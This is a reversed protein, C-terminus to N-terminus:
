FHSSEAFAIRVCFKEKTICLTDDELTTTHGSAQRNNSAVQHLTLGTHGPGKGSKIKTLFNFSPMVNRDSDLM